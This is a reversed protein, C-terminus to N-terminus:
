AKTTTSIGSSHDKIHQVIQSIRPWHIITAMHKYNSPLKCNLLEFALNSCNTTNTQTNTHSTRLVGLTFECYSMGFCRCTNRWILNVQIFPSLLFQPINDHRFMKLRHVSILEAYMKISFTPFVHCFTLPKDETHPHELMFLQQM